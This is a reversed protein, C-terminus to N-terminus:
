LNCNTKICFRCCHQAACEGTIKICPTENDDWFPHCTEIGNTNLLKECSDTIDGIVSMDWDLQTQSTIKHESLVDKAFQIADKCMEDSILDEDNAKLSNLAEKAASMKQTTVEDTNVVLALAYFANDIDDNYETLYNEFNLNM